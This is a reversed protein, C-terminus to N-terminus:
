LNIYGYIYLYEDYKMKNGNNKNIVIKLYSINNVRNLIVM